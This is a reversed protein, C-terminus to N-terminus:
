LRFPFQNHHEKRRQSRGLDFRAVFEKRRSEFAEQEDRSTTLSAQAALDDAQRLAELEERCAPCDELHAQVRGAEAVPLDRDVFRVLRERIWQCTDSM